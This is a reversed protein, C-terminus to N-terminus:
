DRGREVNGDCVQCNGDCDECPNGGKPRSLVALMEDVTMRAKEYDIPPYLSGPQGPENSRTCENKHTAAHPCRKNGCRMCVRMGYFDPMCEACSCERVAVGFSDTASM